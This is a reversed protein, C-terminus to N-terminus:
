LKEVKNDFLNGLITKVKGEEHIPGENKEIICNDEIPMKQIIVSSDNIQSSKSLVVLKKYDWVQIYYQKILKMVVANITSNPVVLVLNHIHQKNSNNGFNNIISETVVAGYNMLLFCYNDGHFDAKFITYTSTASEKKINTFGRLKLLNLFNTPNFRSSKNLINIIFIMFVIFFILEM